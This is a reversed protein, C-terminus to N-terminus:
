KSSLSLDKLMDGPKRAAPGNPNKRLNTERGPLPRGTSDFGKTNLKMGAAFSTNVARKALQAKALAEKASNVSDQIVENGHNITEELQKALARKEALEKALPDQLRKIRDM